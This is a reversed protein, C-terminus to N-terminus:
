LEMQRVLCSAVQQAEFNKQVHERAKSGMRAKEEPHLIYYEMAKVLEPVHGKPVILGNEKHQVVDVCGPVQSVICARGMSMGELIACPIGERWSPLVMVSAGAIYPRVDEVAGLYEIIGEGQWRLVEQVEIAGMGKEEPGLLAFTAKPYKQRVIKAAAVYDRIGKSELLRAMLLFRTAYPYTAVYGYHATDVGTGGKYLIAKEEDVLKKQRFIQIDASNQFFVKKVGVLSIKYLKQAITQIIKKYAKDTDEFAFGLGTICAFVQTNPLYKALLRKALGTYVVPKITSAFIVEPKQQWLIKCLSLLTYMDYFANQGKGHLPYFDVKAGISAMREVDQKPANKPVYCVVQHGRSQLAKLLALWYMFISMSNNVFIFVKM